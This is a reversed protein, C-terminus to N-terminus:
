AIEKKKELYIRGWKEYEADYKESAVHKSDQCHQTQHLADEMDDQLDEIRRRREDEGVADCPLPDDCTLFFSPM